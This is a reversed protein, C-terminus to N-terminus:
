IKITKQACQSVAADHTVVVVTKGEEHFEKLITLVEHKNQDDLSGTPEDALIIDPQKLMIKALAVRQQEGGSLKYVKKKEIDMLGVRKLMKSIQTKKEGKSLKKFRLCILLNELVTDNEILGYNQFLYTMHNRLLKRGDARYISPNKHGRITLTGADAKELMGIINLLTSKGSGSAGTIAIFDNQEIECNFHEFITKDDYKKYINELQIVPM